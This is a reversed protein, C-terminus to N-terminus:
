SSEFLESWHRRRTCRLRRTNQAHVQRAKVPLRKWVYIIAELEIIYQEIINLFVLYQYHIIKGCKETYWM